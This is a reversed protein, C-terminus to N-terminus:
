NMNRPWTFIFAAGEGVASEVKITCNQDDLIRKILALGIGTSEREDKERLTQFIEFIRDHYEPDIGIGNDKVSFEYHDAFERCSIVIQPDKKTAYKVANSILNAFVQELKLRETYIVPLDHVEVSFNRPVISEIVEKVVENVNTFESPTKKRLRAYDLLGNVLDEMRKARQRIIDLNKKMQAPLENGFDEESWNIVNHIGRIPAKLDHSVAYAFKDLEANRNELETINKQLSESMKNLSVSLSRLEDSGSDKLTTFRGDSINEALLVMTKIRKSIRYVIFSATALGIVITSIFFILSFTHTNRTSAALNSRHLSRTNYEISDFEAFKEAIDDNIKKGIQRKLENEFLFKYKEVSEESDFNKRANILSSAYHLWQHHLRDITDLLQLQTSNSGILNKLEGLLLPEAQIGKQYGELFQDDDTLLYGRFSSQMVIMSKHLGTSHRIIEQSKNLFQTNREVKLSLIYNSGTDFISLLLVLLFALIFQVSLKM